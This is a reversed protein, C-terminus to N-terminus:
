SILKVKVRIGDFEAVSSLLRHFTPCCFSPVKPFYVNMEHIAALCEIKCTTLDRIRIFALEVAVM